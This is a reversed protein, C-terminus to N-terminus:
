RTASKMDAKLARVLNDTSDLGRVVLTVGAAKKNLFFSRWRNVKRQFKSPEDPTWGALVVRVGAMSFPLDIAAPPRDPLNGIILLLPLGREHIYFQESRLLAVAVDSATLTSPSHITSNVLGGIQRNVWRLVTADRQSQCNSRWAALQRKWEKLQLDYLKRILQTPDSPERPKAPAESCGVAPARGYVLEAGFRVGIVYVGIAM